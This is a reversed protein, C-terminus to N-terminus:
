KRSRLHDIRGSAYGGVWGILFFIGCLILLDMPNGGTRSSALWCRPVPWRPSGAAVMVSSGTMSSRDMGLLLACEGDNEARGAKVMAELWARVDEPSMTNGAKVADRKGEKMERRMADLKRQLALMEDIEM